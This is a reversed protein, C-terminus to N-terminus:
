FMTAELSKTESPNDEYAYSRKATSVKRIFIIKGGGIKDRDRRFPPCLHGEMHFPPDPFSTDLKTRDICLLYIAVKKCVERLQTIKNKLSNNNLYGIM